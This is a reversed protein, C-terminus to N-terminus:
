RRGARSARRRLRCRDARPRRRRARRRRARRRRSSWARYRAARRGRGPGQRRARLADLVDYAPEGAFRRAEPALLWAIAHAPELAPIIGELRALERFARLAEADTVAEYRGPRHRAPLRARPRRRSLRARRLGLAGRPDPGGRRRARLLARRAAGRDPRRGALRRPPRQRAGRGGAEVGILEVDDDDLFATFTGIANSGGGVCAIM